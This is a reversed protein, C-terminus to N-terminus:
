DFLKDFPNLSKKSSKPKCHKRARKFAKQDRDSVGSQGMRAFDEPTLIATLEEAYCYCYASATGRDIVKSAMEQMCGKSVSKFIAEQEEAQSHGTFLSTTLIMMCAFIFFRIRNM